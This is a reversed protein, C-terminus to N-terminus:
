GGIPARLNGVPEATPRGVVRVVHGDRDLWEMRTPLTGVYIANWDSTAKDRESRTVHEGVLKPLLRRMRATVPSNPTPPPILVFANDRVPVVVPRASPYDARLAAIGDPVLEIAHNETFDSALFARVDEYVQSSPECGPEPESRGEGLAVICLGPEYRSRRQGEIVRRRARPSGCGIPPPPEPRAFAPVVFYRGRQHPTSLERVYAPYYSSLEEFKALETAVEGGAASVAQPERQRFIAFRALITTPPSSALARPSSPPSGLSLFSSICERARSSSVSLQHGAATTNRHGSSGSCGTLFILVLVAILAAPARIRM